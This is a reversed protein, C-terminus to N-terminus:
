NQISKNVSFVLFVSFSKTVTQQIGLDQGCQQSISEAMTPIFEPPAALGTSGTTDADSQTITTSAGTNSTSAAATAVFGM